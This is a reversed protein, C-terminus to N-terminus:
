KKGELREILAALGVATETFDVTSAQTHLASLLQSGVDPALQGSMMAKIIRNGKDALSGTAPLDISMAQPRLPPCVRDVLIKCAQIDGEEAATVLVKMINPMKGAIHNRILMAPSKGAPRGKKNGSEGPKFAM